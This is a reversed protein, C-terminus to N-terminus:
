QYGNDALTYWDVISLKIYPVDHHANCSVTCKLGRNMLDDVQGISILFALLKRSDKSCNAPSSSLELDEIYRGAGIVSFGTIDLNWHKM